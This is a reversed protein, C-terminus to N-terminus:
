SWPTKAQWGPWAFDHALTQGQDSSDHTTGAGEIAGELRQQGAFYAGIQGNGNRDKGEWEFVVDKISKTAATAM